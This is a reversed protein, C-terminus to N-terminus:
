DGGWVLQGTASGDFIAGRVDVVARGFGFAVRWFNM